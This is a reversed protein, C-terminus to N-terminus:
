PKTLISNKSLFKVKRITHEGKFFPKKFTWNRKNMYLILFLARYKKSAYLSLIEPTSKKKRKKQMGFISWSWLVFHRRKKLNRWLKWYLVLWEFAWSLIKLPLTIFIRADVKDSNVWIKMFWLPNPSLIRITFLECKKKKWVNKQRM